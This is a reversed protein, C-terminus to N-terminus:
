SPVYLGTLVQIISYVGPSKEVKNFVTGFVKGGEDMMPAYVAALGRPIYGIQGDPKWTILPWEGEAKYVAVAFADYPNHPERVMVVLDGLQLSRAVEMRSSGDPNPYPLGVVSAPKDKMMLGKYVTHEVLPRDADRDVQRRDQPVQFSREIDHELYYDALEGM